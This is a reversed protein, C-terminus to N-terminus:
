LVRITRGLGLVKGGFLEGYVTVALVSMSHSGFMESVASFLKVVREKERGLFGEQRHVGFFYESDKLYEGRKAVKVVLRSKETDLYQATFSFNAGHVKETAVWQKISNLKRSPWPNTDESMKEYSVFDVQAQTKRCLTKDEATSTPLRSAM